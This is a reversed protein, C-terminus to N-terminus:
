NKNFWTYVSEFHKIIDPDGELAVSGFVILPIYIKERNFDKITQNFKDLEETGNSVNIKVIKTDPHNVLYPEIYDEAKQCSECDPDYYYKVSKETAPVPTSNTLEYLQSENLESGDKSIITASVMSVATASGLIILVVLIGIWNMPSKKMM